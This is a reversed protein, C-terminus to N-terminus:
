KEKGKILIYKNRADKLSAIVAKQALGHFRDKVEEIIDNIDDDLRYGVVISKIFETTMERVMNCTSDIIKGDNRDVVLGIFFSDFLSHIPDNCGIKAMGLIYITDKSFM